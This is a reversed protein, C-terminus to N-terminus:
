GAAAGVHRRDAYDTPDDTQATLFADHRERCKSCLGCHRTGAPKM